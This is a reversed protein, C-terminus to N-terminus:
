VALYFEPHTHSIPVKLQKVNSVVAFVGCFQKAHSIFVVFTGICTYLSM